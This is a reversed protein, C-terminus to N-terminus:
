CDPLPPLTTSSGTGPSATASANGSTSRQTVPSLDAVPRTRQEHNTQWWARADAQTWPMRQRLADLVGLIQGVDQPRDNPAKALCDVILQDLQDPIPRETRVSPRAPTTHLAHYLAEMGNGGPFVDAGTLLKYGVAGLSYIDSRTDLCSPDELREPAIYQPTGSLVGTATIDADAPTDVDKVLGFDLVKVVDADGGRQCLMINLPKIDRHVLGMGHAENLSRCIQALIHVARPIALAGEIEILRALSLGPLFEMAYYFVGDPTRGYDYIEITNPHTLRSALQVEREFRALTEGNILDPKLLKIATPRKLMAHRARYVIGIGGEGIREELIYQGLKRAEGVQTKLRGIWILALFGAGVSVVLLGFLIGFATSLYTLPAYAEDYDIETAVGFGARPLWRWAGIVLVGRYDRYGDLDVGDTGAAALRAMKTRPRAALPVQPRYGATLDGGPDRVQVLTSSRAAPENPILGLQKLQANFRSESLMIGHEEFAYTEGSKGTRAISLIKTFMDGAESDAIGLVGIVAGETNCISTLVAILRDGRKLQSDRVVANKEFPKRVVTEGSLVKMLVNGGPARIREGLKAGTALNTAVMVGSRDWIAYLVAAGAMAQLTDGIEKQQPAQRLDREVTPTDTHIQMLAQVASVLSLDRAWSEVKSEQYEMWHELASIQADRLAVLENARIERLERKMGCYVWYGLLTLLLASTLAAALWQLGPPLGILTRRGSAFQRWADAWPLRIQGASPGGGAAPFDALITRPDHYKLLSNVEERLGADAGCQRDLYAARDQEPLAVAGLFVQKARAHRARNM